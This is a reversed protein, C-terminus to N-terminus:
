CVLEPLVLGSDITSILINFLIPGTNTSGQPVGSAVSRQKAMYGNVAVSSTAMSFIGKGDFLGDTLGMDRQILLLSMRCM